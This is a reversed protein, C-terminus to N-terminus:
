AYGRMRYYAFKLVRPLLFEYWRPWAPSYKLSGCPCPKGLTKSGEMFFLIEEVRTILRRCKYCRYFDFDSEGLRMKERTSQGNFSIM